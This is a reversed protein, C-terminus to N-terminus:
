CTQFLTRKPKPCAAVRWPSLLHCAPAGWSGPVPVVNGAWESHRTPDCQLWVGAAPAAHSQAEKWAEGQVTRPHGLVHAASVMDGAERGRGPLTYLVPHGLIDWWTAQPFGHFCAGPFGPSFCGELSISCTGNPWYWVCDCGKM